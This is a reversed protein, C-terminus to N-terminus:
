YAVLGLIVRVMIRVRVWHHTNVNGVPAPPTIVHGDYKRVQYPLVNKKGISRSM